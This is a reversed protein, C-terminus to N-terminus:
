AGTEAPPGDVRGQDAPQHLSRDDAHEREALNKAAAELAGVEPEVSPRGVRAAAVHAFTHLQQQPMGELGQLEMPTSPLTCGPLARDM